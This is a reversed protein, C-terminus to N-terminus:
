RGSVIEYIAKAAQARNVESLPDFITESVGVMIGHEQVYGVADKAWSSISSADAFSLTEAPSIQGGSAYRALIVAMEQRSIPRGVGFSGDDTGEVLGNKQASAIYPYYWATEETDVFTSEAKEDYCDVALVLLKIFEERTIADLPAFHSEDRGSIIGKKWLENVAEKAWAVSDLDEFVPENAEPVDPFPTDVIVAGATQGTKSGGGSSGSSGGRNGESEKESDANLVANILESISGYRSSHLNIQLSIELQQTSNKGLFDSLAEQDLRDSEILIQRVSYKSDNNHCAYLVTLDWFEEIFERISSYKTKNELIEELLADKQATCMQGDEFVGSGRYLDYSNSEAIGYAECQALFADFSEQDEAGHLKVFCVQEKFSDIVQQLDSFNGAKQKYALLLGWFIEQEQESLTDYQTKCQEVIYADALVSAKLEEATVSDNISNISRQSYYFMQNKGYSVRIEPLSTQEYGHVVVEYSGDEDLVVTDLFCLYNLISDGEREVDFEDVCLVSPDESLERRWAAGDKLVELTVMGSVGTLGTGCITLTKNETDMTVTDIPAASVLIPLNLLLLMLVCFRMKKM